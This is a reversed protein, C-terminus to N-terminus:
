FNDTAALRIEEELLDLAALLSHSIGVLQETILAV